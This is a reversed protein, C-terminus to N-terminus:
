QDLHRVRPGGLTAIVSGRGDLVSLTTDAGLRAAAAVKGRGDVLLLNLGASDARLVALPKGGTGVLELREAQVVPAQPVMAAAGLALPLICLATVLLRRVQRLERELRDLRTGTELSDIPIM